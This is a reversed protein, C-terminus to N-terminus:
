GKSGIPYVRELLLTFGKVGIPNVRERLLTSGKGVERRGGDCRGMRRVAARGFRRSIQRAANM